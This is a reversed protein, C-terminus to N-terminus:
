DVKKSGKFFKSGYKTVWSYFWNVHLAMTLSYLVPILADTGTVLSFSLMYAHFCIRLFFFTVGFGIDTRLSPYIYGCALLFTPLEEILMYTFAPAFVEVTLFGGNGTTCTVMMWIYVTHHVYATLPDLYKRYFILGFVLDTANAMAFWLCLLAAANDVGHFIARNAQYFFFGEFQPARNYLYVTGAVTGVFSNFLSVVWAMKKPESDFTIKGYCCVLLLIVAYVGSVITFDSQSLTLERFNEPAFVPM